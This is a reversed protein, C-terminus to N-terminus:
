FLDGDASTYAPNLTFEELQALAKAPNVRMVEDIENLFEHYKEIVKKM